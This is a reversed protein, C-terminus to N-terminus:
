PQHPCPHACVCEWATYSAHVLPTVGAPGHEQVIATSPVSNDTDTAIVNTYVDVPDQKCQKIAALPSWRPGLLNHSAGLSLFTSPKSLKLPHISVNASQPRTFGCWIEWKWSLCNKPYHFAYTTAGEISSIDGFKAHPRLINRHNDLKTLIPGQCGFVNAM